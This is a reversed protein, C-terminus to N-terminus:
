RVPASGGHIPAMQPLVPARAVTPRQEAVAYRTFGALAGAVVTFVPNVMANMLCDAMYLILVVSLVVAPACRPDHWSRPPMRRLLLLPPGLFAALLAALAVGGQEGLVIVWLGDTL